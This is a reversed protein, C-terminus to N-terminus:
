ALTWAAVLWGVGHLADRFLLRADVGGGALLSGAARWTDWSHLCVEAGPAPLDALADGDGAALAGALRDDLADAATTAAAIEAAPHGPGDLPPFREAGDAVVLLGVRAPGDVLGLLEAAAPSAGFGPACSVGLAGTSPGFRERLCWAGLTLAPPLPDSAGCAPSGLHVTVDLGFGALTGEAVPSFRLSTPGPGLVVLRDLGALVALADAAATRLGAISPEPAAAGAVPVLLPTGPVFAAAAIM